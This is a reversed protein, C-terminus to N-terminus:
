LRDKREEPVEKREKGEGRAHHVTNQISIEGTKKKLKPKNLVQRV